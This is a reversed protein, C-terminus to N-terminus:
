YHCSGYYGYPVAEPYGYSPMMGYHYGGQHIAHCSREDNTGEVGQEEVEEEEDEEEDSDEIEVAAKYCEQSCYRFSGGEGLWDDYNRCEYCHFTQCPGSCFEGYEMVCEQCLVEMVGKTDLCSQCFVGVDEGEGCKNTEGRLPKQCNSEDCVRRDDIAVRNTDEASKDLDHDGDVTVVTKGEAAAPHPRAETMESVESQPTRLEVLMNKFKPNTPAQKERKANLLHRRQSRKITAKAMELERRLGLIEHDKAALLIQQRRVDNDRAELVARFHRDMAQLDHQLRMIHLKARKREESPRRTKVASFKSCLNRCVNDVSNPDYRYHYSAM